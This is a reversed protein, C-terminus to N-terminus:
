PQIRRAGSTQNQGLKGPLKNTRDEILLTKRKPARLEIWATKQEARNTTQETREAQMANGFFLLAILILPSM